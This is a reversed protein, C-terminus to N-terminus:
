KLLVMSTPVRGAPTTLVYRYQGSPVPAVTFVASFREKMERVKSQLVSVQSRFLVPPGSGM